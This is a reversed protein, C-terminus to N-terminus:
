LGFLPDPLALSQSLHIYMQVSLACVQKNLKTLRCYWVNTFMAIASLHSFTLLGM